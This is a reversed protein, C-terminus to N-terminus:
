STRMNSHQRTHTNHQAPQPRQLSPSDCITQQLHALAGGRVQQQPRPRVHGQAAAHHSFPHRLHPHTLAVCNLWLDLACQFSLLPTPCCAAMPAGHDQLERRVRCLPWLARLLAMAAEPPLGAFHALCDKLPQLHGALLGPQSACLRSLLLVQPLCAELKAAGLQPATSTM